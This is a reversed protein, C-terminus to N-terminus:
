PCSRGMNHILIIDDKEGFLDSLAVKGGRSDTLSYDKVEERAVTKAGM